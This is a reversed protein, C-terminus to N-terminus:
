QVVELAVELEAIKRREPLGKRLRAQKTARVERRDFAREGRAMKAKFKKSTIWNMFNIADVSTLACQAVYADYEAQLRKEREERTEISM